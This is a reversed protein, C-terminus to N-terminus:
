DNVTIYITLLFVTSLLKVISIKDLHYVTTPVKKEEAQTLAYHM